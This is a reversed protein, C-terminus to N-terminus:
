RVFNIKKEKRIRNVINAQLTGTSEFNTMAKGFEEDYGKEFTLNDLIELVQERNSVSVTEGEGGKELPENTIFNREVPKATISKRQNPKDLSKELETFKDSLETISEIAKTLDDNKNAGLAESVSGKILDPSLSKEITEVKAVVGLVSDYIGKLIVGVSYNKDNIVTKLDEIAKKLDDEDEKKKTKDDADNDDDKKIDGYIKSMVSEATAKEFGKSLCTEMAEEKTKGGKKMLNCLQEAKKLNDEDSADKDHNFTKDDAEDSKKTVSVVAKEIVDLAKTIEEETLNIAGDRMNFSKLIINSCKEANILNIGTKNNLIFDIVESKKLINSKKKKDTQNLQDKIGDDIDETKLAAGSADTKNTVDRGTENGAELMKKIEDEDEKDYEPKYNEDVGGKIIDLFTKPNKPMFTIACGTIAAKEVIKYDPHNKDENKRKTAKGEISFGLRRNQSNNQLMQATNYVSKAIDSDPYLIGEVYLGDKRKEAKTPEGIIASPDSKAMHHWNFFGQNKFYSVDFGNPDLYEGDTDREPTSAIGGIKMVENGNADKAKSLELPIFFKIDNNEIEM